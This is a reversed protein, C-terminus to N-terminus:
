LTYKNRDHCVCSRARGEGVEEGLVEDRQDEGGLGVQEAAIRPDALIQAAQDDLTEGGGHGRRRQRHLPEARRRGIGRRHRRQRRLGSRGDVNLQRGGGCDGRFGVNLEGRGGFAPAARGRPVAIAPDM